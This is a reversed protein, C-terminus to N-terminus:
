GRPDRHESSTLLLLPLNSIGDASYVYVHSDRCM